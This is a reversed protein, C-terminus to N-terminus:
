QPMPRRAHWDCWFGFSLAGRGSFYARRYHLLVARAEDYDVWIGDLLDGFPGTAGHPFRYNHVRKLRILSKTADPIPVMTTSAGTLGVEPGLVSLTPQHVLKFRDYGLQKLCDLTKLAQQDTLQEGEGICETEVSVFAPLERSSALSDLCAADEGEIDIKCYFPVGHAAFLSDLRRAPVSVEGVCSQERDSITRSLSNWVSRESLYLTTNGESAAVACHELVLMGSRVPKAFMRAAQEVLRPDADIGIVRYGLGLYYATDEGHHMGVDFILKHEMSTGPPRREDPPTLRVILM